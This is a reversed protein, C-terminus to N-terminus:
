SGSFPREAGFSAFKMFISDDQITLAQWPILERIRQALANGSKLREVREVRKGDPPLGGSPVSKNEPHWTPFGPEVLPSRSSHRRLM